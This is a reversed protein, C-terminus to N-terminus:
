AIDNSNKEIYTTQGDTQRHTYLNIEFKVDRYQLNKCQSKNFKIKPPQVEPDIVMQQKTLTYM